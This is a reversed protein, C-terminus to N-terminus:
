DNALVTVICSKPFFNIHYGDLTWTAYDLEDGKMTTRYNDGYANTLSSMIATQTKEDTVDSDFRVGDILLTDYDRCLVVQGSLGLFKTSKDLYLWEITGSQKETKVPTIDIDTIKKGFAAVYTDIEAKADFTQGSNSSNLALANKEGSAENATINVTIKNYGDANGVGTEYTYSVIEIHGDKHASIEDAEVTGKGGPEIAESGLPLVDVDTLGTMTNDKDYCAVTAKLSKLAVDGNNVFDRSRYGLLRADSFALVNADAFSTNGGEAVEDATAVKSNLDITYRMGDLDYSYRTVANNVQTANADSVVSNFQLRMKGRPDLVIPYSRGSDALANHLDNGDGDKTTFEFALSSITDIDSTNQVSYITFDNSSLKNDKDFSLLNYQDFPVENDPTSAHEIASKESGNEVQGNNAQQGCASLGFALIPLLALVALSRNLRM